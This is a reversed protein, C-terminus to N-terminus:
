WAARSVRSVGAEMLRTMQDDSNSNKVLGILSVRIELSNSQIFRPFLVIDTLPWRPIVAMVHSHAVVHPQSMAHPRAMVAMVHPHAVIHPRSMAHPCIGM